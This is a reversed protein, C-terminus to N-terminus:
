IVNYSSTNRFRCLADNWWCCWTWGHVLRFKESLATLQAGAASGGILGIVVVIAFCSGLAAMALYNLKVIGKPNAEEAYKDAKSMLASM